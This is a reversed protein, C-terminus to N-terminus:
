FINNRLSFNTQLSKKFRNRGLYLIEAAEIFLRIYFEISVKIMM